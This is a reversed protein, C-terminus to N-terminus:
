LAVRARATQHVDFDLIAVRDIGPRKLAVDAAVAISNLLCFGMATGHEAHHGPPRIACFARKDRGDLVQLTAQTAAGTALRAARLSAPCLATDPDLAALGEEPVMSALKELYTPDHIAAVMAMEVPEADVCILDSMLGTNSLHKEVARLRDPREPHGPLMEHDLCGPHSFYLM